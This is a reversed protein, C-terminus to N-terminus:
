TRSHPLVGLRWISLIAVGNDPYSLAPIQITDPFAPTLGNHQHGASRNECFRPAAIRPAPTSGAVTTKLAMSRSPPANRGRGKGTQGGARLFGWSPRYDDRMEAYALSPCRRQPNQNSRHQM